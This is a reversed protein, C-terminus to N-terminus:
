ESLNERECRCKHMKKNIEFHKTWTPQSQLHWGPALTIDTLRVQLRTRQHRLSADRTPPDRLPCVARQDAQWDGQRVSGRRGPHGSGGWMFWESAWHQQHGAPPSCVCQGSWTGVSLWSLLVPSRTSYGEAMYVWWPYCPINQIFICCGLNGVTTSDLPTGFFCQLVNYENLSLCFM